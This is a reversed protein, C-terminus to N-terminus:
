FYNYTGYPPHQQGANGVQAQNIYGNNSNNANNNSFANLFSCFNNFTSPMTSKTNNANNNVFMNSSSPPSQQPFRMGNVGFNNYSGNSTSSSSSYGSSLSSTPSTSAFSSASSSVSSLTCTAPTSLTTATTKKLFSNSNMQSNNYMSYNNNSHYIHQLPPLSQQQTPQPQQRKLVQPGTYTMTSTTTPSVTVSTRCFYSNGSNIPYQFDCHECRVLSYDQIHGNPGLRHYQSRNALYMPMNNNEPLYTYRLTWKDPNINAGLDLIDRGNYRIEFEEPTDPPTSPLSQQQKRFFISTPWHPFEKFQHDLELGAQVLFYQSRQLQLNWHTHSRIYGLM